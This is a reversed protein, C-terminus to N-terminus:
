DALPVIFRGSGGRRKGNVNTLKMEVVLYGDKAARLGLKQMQEVMPHHGRSIEDISFERELGVFHYVFAKGGPMAILPEGLPIDFQRALSSRLILGWQTEYTGDGKGPSVRLASKVLPMWGGWSKLLPYVREDQEFDRANTHPLFWCPEVERVEWDVPRQLRKEYWAKVREHEALVAETRRMEARLIEAKEDLLKLAEDDEASLMRSMDKVTVGYNRLRMYELIRSSQDFDYYRYGSATYQVELLGNEEYHKLFDPTVGMYRAYDGIRYLKRENPDAM